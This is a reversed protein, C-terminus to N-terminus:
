ATYVSLYASQRGTASSSQAQSLYVPVALCVRLKAEFWRRKEQFNSLEAADQFSLECLQEDDRDSGAEIIM